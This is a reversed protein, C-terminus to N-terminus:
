VKQADDVAIRYDVYGTSIGSVIDVIRGDGEGAFQQNGLIAGDLVEDGDAGIVFTRRLGERQFSHQRGLAIGHHHGIVDAEADGSVADMRVHMHFASGAAHHIHCQRHFRIQLM